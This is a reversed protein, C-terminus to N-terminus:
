WCSRSSDFCEREFRCQWYIKGTIDRRATDGIVRKQSIEVLKKDEFQFTKGSMCPIDLHACFEELHYFELGITTIGLVAAKNVNMWKVNKNLLLHLGDKTCTEINYWLDCNECHFKFVSRIGFKIEKMLKMKSDCKDSHKRLTEM